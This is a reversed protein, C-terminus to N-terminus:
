RFYLSHLEEYLRRKWEGIMEDRRSGFMKKLVRGEFVKLRYEYRLM